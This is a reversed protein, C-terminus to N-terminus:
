QLNRICSAIKNEQASLGFLKTESVVNRATAIIYKAASQTQSVANRIRNSVPRVVVIAGDPTGSGPPPTPASMTSGEVAPPASPTAPAALTESLSSFNVANPKISMAVFYNVDMIRDRAYDAITDFLFIESDAASAAVKASSIAQALVSENNALTSVVNPYATEEAKAASTTLPVNQAAKLARGGSTILKELKKADAGLEQEALRKGVFTTKTLGSVNRSTSGYAYPSLRAYVCELGMIGRQYVSGIHGAGIMANTGVLTGAALGIGSILDPSGNFLAAGGAGAALPIFSINSWFKWDYAEDRDHRWKHALAQAVNLNKSLDNYRFTKYDSNTLGDPIGRLSECGGLWSCMGLLAVVGITLRVAPSPLNLSRELKRLTM